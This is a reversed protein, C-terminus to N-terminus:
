FHGFNVWAVIITHTKLNYFFRSHFEIKTVGVEKYVLPQHVKELILAKM